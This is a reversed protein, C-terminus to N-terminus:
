IELRNGPQLSNFFDDMSRAKQKKTEATKPLSSGAQPKSLTGKKVSDIDHKRLKEVISKPLVELLQPAELDELYESIDQLYDGRVKEYAEKASWRQTASEDALSALLQEAIRAVHRPKPNKIGSEALAQAIEDDIQKAVLMEQQERQAKESHEKAAKERAEYEALRRKAERADKQEDTLSLEEVAARLKQEAYQVPDLGLLKFFEDPNQKSKEFLDSIENRLQAAEQFRKGSAKGLQALKIVDEYNLEEEAGDVKLRHKTGKFDVVPQEAVVETPAVVQEVVDKDVVAPSAEQAVATAGAVTGEM